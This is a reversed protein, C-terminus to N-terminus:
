IQVVRTVARSGGGGGGLAEEWEMEWVAQEERDREQEQLADLLAVARARFDKESLFSKEQEPGHVPPPPPVPRRAVACEDAAWAPPLPLVDQPEFLADRLPHGLVGGGKADALQAAPLDAAAAARAAAARRRPPVLLRARRRRAGPRPHPPPCVVTLLSPLPACWGVPTALAREDHRRRAGGRVRPLRAQLARAAAARRRAGDVLRGRRPRRRRASAARPLHAAPRRVARRRGAVLPPPPCSCRCPAAHGGPLPLSPHTLYFRVALRKLAVLRAMFGAGLKHVREAYEAGGASVLPELEEVMAKSLSPLECGMQQLLERAKGIGELEAEGGPTIGSAADAAAGPAALQGVTGVPVGVCLCVFATAFSAIESEERLRTGGQAGEKIRGWRGFGFSLLARECNM